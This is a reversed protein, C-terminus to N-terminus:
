YTTHAEVEADTSGGRFKGPKAGAPYYGRAINPDNPVGPAQHPSVNYQKQGGDKFKVITSSPKKM